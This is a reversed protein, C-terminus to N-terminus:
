AAATQGRQRAALLIAIVTMADTIEGSVAMRLAETFSFERVEIFETEDPRAETSVLGEALFLHATEDLVSKSTHITTLPTLKAAHYGTEEALERQAAQERTEGPHMGGTPMEWTERGAVYRYQRLLLVTDPGTFPLLGVCEGTRVVGYLTVNGDPLEVLDERVSIWRNRYIERTSLQKWPRGAWRARPAKM